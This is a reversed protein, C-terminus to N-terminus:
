QVKTEAHERHEMMSGTRGTRRCAVIHWVEGELQQLVAPRRVGLCPRPWFVIRAPRQTEVESAEHQTRQAHQAGQWAAHRWPPPAAGSGAMGAPTATKRGLMEPLAQRRTSQDQHLRSCSLWHGLQQRAHGIKGYGVGCRKGRGQRCTVGGSIRFIVVLAPLAPAPLLPKYLCQAGNSAHECFSRRTGPAACAWQSCVCGIGAHQRAAGQAPEGVPVAM